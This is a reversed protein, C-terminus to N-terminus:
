NLLKISSDSQNYRTFNLLVRDNSLTDGSLFWTDLSSFSFKNYWGYSVEIRWICSYVDVKTNNCIAIIFDEDSVRYIYGGFFSGSSSLTFRRKPITYSGVISCGWIKHKFTGPTLTLVLVKDDTLRKAVFYGIQGYIQFSLSGNGYTTFRMLSGGSKYIKFNAAIFITMYVAPPLPSCYFHASAIDAYNTVARQTYGGAFLYYSGTEKIFDMSFGYVQLNWYGYVSGGCLDPPNYEWEEPTHVAYPYATLHRVKSTLLAFSSGNFSYGITIMTPHDDGSQAYKSNVFVGVCAGDNSKSLKVQWMTADCIYNLYSDFTVVNGISISGVVIVSKEVGRWYAILFTDSNFSVIDIDANAYVSQSTDPTIVDTTSLVTPDGSEGIELITIALYGKQYQSQFKYHLVAVRGDSLESVKAFHYAGLLDGSEIPPPEPDDPTGGEDGDEPRRSIAKETIDCTKNVDACSTESDYEVDYGFDTIKLSGNCDPFTIHPEVCLLNIYRKDLDQRDTQM